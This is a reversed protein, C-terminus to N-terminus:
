QKFTSEYVPKTEGADEVESEPKVKKYFQSISWWEEVFNYGYEYVRPVKDYIKGRKFGIANKDSLVAFFKEWLCHPCSYHVADNEVMKEKKMYAQKVEGKDNVPVFVGELKEDVEIKDYIRYTDKDVEVSAGCIPCPAVGSLDSAYSYNNKVIELLKERECVILGEEEIRKLEDELKVRDEYKVSMNYKEVFEAVLKERDAIEAKEQKEIKAKEEKKKEEDSIDFMSFIQAWLVYVVVSIGFYLWYIPNGGGIGALLLFIVGLLLLVNVINIVNYVKKSVIKKKEKKM